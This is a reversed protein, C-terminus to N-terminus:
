DHEILRLVPQMRLFGNELHQDPFSAAYSRILARYVFHKFNPSCTIALQLKVYTMSIYFKFHCEELLTTYM